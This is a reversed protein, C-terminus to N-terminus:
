ILEYLHDVDECLTGQNQELTKVREKLKELEKKTKILEEIIPDQQKGYVLEEARDYSVGIFVLCVVSVSKFIKRAKVLSSMFETVLLNQGM